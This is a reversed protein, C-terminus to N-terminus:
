RRAVRSQGIRVEVPVPANIGRIECHKKRRPSNRTSNVFSRRSADTPADHCARAHGREGFCRQLQGDIVRWGRWGRSLARALHVTSGFTVAISWARCKVAAVVSIIVVNESIKRVLSQDTARNVPVSISDRFDPLAITSPNCRHNRCV